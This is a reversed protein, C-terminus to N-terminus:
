RADTAYGGGDTDEDDDDDSLFADVEDAAEDWAFGAMGEGEGSGEGDDQGIEDEGIRDMEYAFPNGPEQEAALAAMILRDEAEQTASILPPDPLPSPTRKNNSIEFPIPLLYDQEPIRTWSAISENLWTPWVVSISKHRQGLKVKETLEKAAVVHTVAKNLELYCKAGFDEAM